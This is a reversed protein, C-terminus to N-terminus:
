YGTRQDKYCEWCYGIRERYEPAGCKMCYGQQISRRKKKLTIRPVEPQIVEKERRENKARIKIELNIKEKESERIIKERENKLYVKNVNEFLIKRAERENLINIQNRYNILSNYMKRSAYNCNCKNCKKVNLSHIKNKNTTMSLISPNLGGGCESCRIINRLASKSLLIVNEM